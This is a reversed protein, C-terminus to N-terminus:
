KVVCDNANDRADLAFLEDVGADDDEAQLLTEKFGADVDVILAEAGEPRLDIEIQNAVVDFGERSDTGSIGCGTGDRLQTLSLAKVPEDRRAAGDDLDGGDV